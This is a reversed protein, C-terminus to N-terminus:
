PTRESADVEILWNRAAQEVVGMARGLFQQIIAVSTRLHQSPGVTGFRGGNGLVMPVLLQDAFYAGV